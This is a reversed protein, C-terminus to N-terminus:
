RLKESNDTQYFQFIAFHSRLQAYVQEHEVPEFCTNVRHKLVERKRAFLM